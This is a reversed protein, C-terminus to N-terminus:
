CEVRTLSKYLMHKSITQSISIPKNILCGNQICYYTRLGILGLWMVGFAVGVGCAVCKLVGMPQSVRVMSVLISLRCPRLEQPHPADRVRALSRVMAGHSVRIHSDLQWSHLFKSRQSRISM